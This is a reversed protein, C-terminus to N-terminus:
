GRDACRRAALASGAGGRGMVAISTTAKMALKSGM